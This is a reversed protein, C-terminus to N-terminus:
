INQYTNFKMAGLFFTKVTERIDEKSEYDLPYQLYSTSIRGFWNVLKILQMDPNIQQKTIATDYPQQFFAIWDQTFQPNKFYLAVPDLGTGQSVDLMFLTSKPSEEIVYILCDLVFNPFDENAPVNNRVEQLFMQAQEICAAILIDKKSKFHHYISRRAVGAAEAIDDLTTAQFGNKEFAIAAAEMIALRTPARTDRPAEALTSDRSM